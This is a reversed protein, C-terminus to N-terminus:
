NESGNRSGRHLERTKSAENILEYVLKLFERASDITFSVTVSEAEDPNIIIFLQKGDESMATEIRDM